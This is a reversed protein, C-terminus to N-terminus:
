QSWFLGYNALQNLIYIIFVGLYLLFVWSCRSLNIIYQCFPIFIGSVYDLYDPGKVVSSCPFYHKHIYIPFCNGSLGLWSYKWRFILVCSCPCLSSYSDSSPDNHTLNVLHHPFSNAFTNCIRISPKQLNHTCRKMGSRFLLYGLSRFVGQYVFCQWCM